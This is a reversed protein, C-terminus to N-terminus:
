STGRHRSAIGVVLSLLVLHAVISLGLTVIRM